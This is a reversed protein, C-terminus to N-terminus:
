RAALLRRTGVYSVGVAVVTYAVLALTTGTSLSLGRLMVDRLLTIGFTAPLLWTIAHAPYALRDTALFFGSFFLSALLVIMSYQVAQTDTHSVLSIVFGLGVSAVLVLGLVAAVAFPSGHLPVGLLRVVLTVLLAAVAGGILFYSLYKGLLLPGASVPGARYMEVTGLSRERVFTVAGFAVGFQQVLLVVAAPAYFDTITNSGDGVARVQSTFPRVLVEAQVTTFADFNEHVTTLTQDIDALQQRAADISGGSLTSELAGVKSELQGLSSSATSAAGSLSAPAAHQSSIGMTRELVTRLQGVDAGLDKAAQVAGNQDSAAVATDVASVATTAAGFVDGLPRAVQQGETVIGALIQSNIQDVALRSAFDIATQEVPDLRTHLVAVPAQHGSLVTGLPDAPFEVVVDVDGRRLRSEAATADETTGAFRVYKGLEQAYGQVRSAFPTGPPTVFLTRYPDPSRRYGLGFALLILFPGVVLMLVLRPQRGVDITEKGLFGLTQSSRRLTGAAATVGAGRV